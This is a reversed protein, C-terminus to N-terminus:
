NGGVESATVEALAALQVPTLNSNANLLPEATVYNPSQPSTVNALNMAGVLAAVTLAPAAEPSAVETDQQEVIESM